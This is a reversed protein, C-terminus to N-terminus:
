IKNIFGEFAGLGFLAFDYSAPDNPNYKRLLIDLEEVAKWDNQKRTLIGLRRAINGSHVDLPCSLYQPSLRQWIGFDVRKSDKRVMWRLFMMLRKCASNKYSSAIHKHSRHHEKSLFANRFRELAHYFNTEEKELLFLNEMSENKTYIKKLNLIFAKFDEASFTRHVAKNELLIFHKEKAEMVFDFPNNGMFAMMKDASKIINKRNGWAIIASLFGAVEIDQKLSYRHPIQIPDSDIYEPINFEEVKQELFVFIEKETM